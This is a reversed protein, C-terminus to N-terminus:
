PREGKKKVKTGAAKKKAPPAVEGEAVIKFKMVAEGQEVSDTARVKITFEGAKDPFWSWSSRDSAKQVVEEKNDGALIFEYKPSFFGSAKASFVIEEGVKQPEELSAKLNLGVEKKLFCLKGKDTAPDYSNILLWPEVWEVPGKLEQGADFTGGDEGSKIMYTKLSPSSVSVVIKDEIIVPPYTLRSALSKWWLIDGERKDMCMLVGHSTWIFIRPGLALPKAALTAGLKVKWRTKQALLDFRQFTRDEGGFFIFGPEILPVASLKKGLPIRSVVQGELTLMHGLGDDNVLFLRDASGIKWPVPPTSLAAGAQFRWAERGDRCDLCVLGGGASALFVQGEVSVVSFLGEGKFERGWRLGGDMRELCSVTGNEDCILVCDKGPAPACVLPSGAKHEWILRRGGLDVAYVMGGTTGLFLSQGDRVAQDVLEGPYELAADVKLPFIVGRPYPPVSTKFLSCSGLTLGLVLAIWVGPKKM